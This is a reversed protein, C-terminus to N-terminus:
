LLRASSKAEDWDVGAGVEVELPVDLKVASKMAETVLETAREVEEDPVELVIEDHVQLIQRARAGESRLAEELRVMAAKIIDAATGQVPANMAMREGMKRVQYKDAKLEPIYRRRGFLTETFGVRRAREVVEDMYRKVGPFTEFYKDIIKKADETPIGLRQGLGYAELGYSLGYNVMKAARRMTEDVADLEVGFVRAATEAHVDHGEVLAKKLGSDGSLHAMVRLEIQSYDASVLMWGPPACFLKRMQRGLPTRIPVNQVNPNDTSIRGTATATQNYRPHIRGDAAVVKALSEVMSRLKEYERFQLIKEVIPHADRLTELSSADTAYGTKTTKPPSLGLKEYLIKGLQQTSRVNFDEGAIEKIEKERRSVEWTFDSRLQELYDLDVKIGHKEMSALLPILPRELEEYLRLMGSDALGKELPKCLAATARARKALEAYDAHIDLQRQAGELRLDAYEAAVEALDPQSVIGPRLLYAVLSTDIGVGEIAPFGLLRLIDHFGHANKIVSGDGLLAVLASYAAELESSSGGSEPSLRAGDPAPAATSADEKGTSEPKETRGVRDASRDPLGAAGLPPVALRLIGCEKGDSSAIAVAVTSASSPSAASNTDTGSGNGASSRSGRKRGVDAIHCAAALSVGQAWRGAFSALSEADLEIFDGSPENETGGAGGLEAGFVEKVRGLLSRFELASFVQEVARFDPKPRANELLAEDVPVDDVLRIIRRNAELQQRSEEFAKRLKPPLEDLHEYIGEISGYKALLKAATKEGVGPVGPINDSPDGRMAAYDVYQSPSVGYKERVASEDFTVVDSLGRRNYVVKISPDEVLQLSDRDGTVILVEDGRRSSRKALTAIVDDAEYGEVQVSPIGLADVVERILPEQEKFPEPTEARQAKYEEFLDERFTKGPADFVVVVGDPRYDSLAKLVMSSFGYVANTVQGSSTQFDAPLAYFARFAISHGDILM